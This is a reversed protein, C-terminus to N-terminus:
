AVSTDSVRDLPLGVEALMRADFTLDHLVKIPGGPGLIPQLPALDLGPGLPDVIAVQMSDAEPWAIQLVCLSARFAFLGNAEVDVGLRPAKALRSVLGELEGRSRVLLAPAAGGTM